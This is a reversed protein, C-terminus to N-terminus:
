LQVVALGLERKTRTKLVCTGKATDNEEAKAPFPAVQKLAKPHGTSDTRPPPLELTQMMENQLLPQTLSGSM